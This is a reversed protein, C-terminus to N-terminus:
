NEKKKTKQLIGGTHYALYLFLGMIALEDRLVRLLTADFDYMVFHTQLFLYSPIRNHIFRYAGYLAIGAALIRLCRGLITPCPKKMRSKMIGMIMRWHLGIHMSMLMFGWYACFMHVQRARMSTGVIYIDKFIHNSLLIGSVMSGIMLVFMVFAIVTQIIRFLRYKGNTIATLWRRNLIHHVVFLFFMIMGIWEHATESIMSYPMLLLLCITMCIDVTIKILMKKNM